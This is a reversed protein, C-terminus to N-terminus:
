IKIVNYFVASVLLLAINRRFQSHLTIINIITLMHRCSDTVIKALQGLPPLVTVVYM